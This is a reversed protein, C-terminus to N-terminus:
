YTSQVMKKVDVIGFPGCQGLMWYSVSIHMEYNFKELVGELEM